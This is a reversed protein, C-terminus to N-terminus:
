LSYESTAAKKTPPFVLLDWKLVVAFYLMENIGRVPDFYAPVALTRYKEIKGVPVLTGESLSPSAVV